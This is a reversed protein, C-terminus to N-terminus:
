PAGDGSPDSIPSKLCNELEARAVRLASLAERVRKARRERHEAEARLASASQELEEAHRLYAELDDSAPATPPPTSPVEEQAPTKVAPVEEQPEPVFTEILFLRETQTGFNSFPRWEALELEILHDISKDADYHDGFRLTLDRKPNPFFWEEGRCQANVRLCALARFPEILRRPQALHVEPLAVCPREIEIEDLEALLTFRYRLTDKAISEKTWPTLCDYVMWRCHSVLQWFISLPYLNSGMDQTPAINAAKLTEIVIELPWHVAEFSRVRTVPDLPTKEYLGRYLIRRLNVVALMEDLPIEPSEDFLSM